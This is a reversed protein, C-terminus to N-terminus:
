GIPTMGLLIDANPGAFKRLNTMAPRLKHYAKKAVVKGEKALQKQAREAMKAQLQAKKAAKKDM